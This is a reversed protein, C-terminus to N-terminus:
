KVNLLLPRIWLREEKNEKKIYNHNSDYWENELELIDLEMELSNVYFKKYNKVKDWMDTPEPTVELNKYKLLIDRYPFTHLNDLRFHINFRNNVVLVIVRTWQINLINEIIM